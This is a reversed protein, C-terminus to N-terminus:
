INNADCWSMTQLSVGRDVTMEVHLDAQRTIGQWGVVEISVVLGEIELDGRIRREAEIKRM